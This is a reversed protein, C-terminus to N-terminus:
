RQVTQRVRLEPSLAIARLVERITGGSADFAGSAARRLYRDEPELSRGLAFRVWNDTACAAVTSSTALRESLALADDFSGEPDVGILEGHADITLGQDLARFAGVADYHEFAFGIGNIRTHCSACSAPATRREYLVRDTVPGEGEVPVPPSLDAVM